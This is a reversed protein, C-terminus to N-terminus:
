PRMSRAVRVLLARTRALSEEAEGVPFPVAVYDTVGLDALGQIQEAVADEDGVITVDAPDKGGERDLMARYSPLQGYIQFRRAATERAGAIDTTVAIPLAVVVRPSARGAKAAAERITPITHERLTRPGTMWTITGDGVSGALGLMRPALAALLIQCPRSGPVSVSATVRYESGDHAVHGQRVLPGLVALYEKMHTFPKAYSLGLMSEIVVAHSLGIGLTFRGGTAAQATLAQQALAAPHRPYTPVVATGLEIRATHRGVLAAAMIADIGFIQAFWGSTFGDAEAEMAQAILGDIDVPVGAIEGIGIGVKM